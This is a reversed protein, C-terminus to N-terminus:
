LVLTLSSRTSSCCCYCPGTDHLTLFFTWPLPPPVLHSRVEEKTFPVGKVYITSTAAPDDKEKEKKDKKAKKEKREKKPQAEGETPPVDLTVKDQMFGTDKTLIEWCSCVSPCFLLIGDV